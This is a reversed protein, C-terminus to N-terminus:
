CFLFYSFLQEIGPLWVLELEKNVIKEGVGHKSHLIIRHCLMIFSKLQFQFYRRSFLTRKM